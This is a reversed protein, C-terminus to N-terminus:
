FLTYNFRFNLLSIMVFSITEVHTM